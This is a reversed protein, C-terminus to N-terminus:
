GNSVEKAPETVEESTTEAPQEAKVIESYELNLNEIKTNLEHLEREQMKIRYQLEGAAVCLKGYENKLEEKRPASM